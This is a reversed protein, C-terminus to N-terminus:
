RTGERAMLPLPLDLLVAGAPPRAGAALALGAAGDPAALVEYGEGGLAAEVVERLAPDDEVLLVRAGGPGGGQHGGTSGADVGATPAGVGVDGVDGVDSGAPRDTQGRPPPAV